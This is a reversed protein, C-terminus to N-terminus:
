CRALPFLLSNMEFFGDKLMNIIILLNFNLFFLPVYNWFMLKVLETMELSLLVM